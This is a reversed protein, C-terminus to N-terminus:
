WEPSDHKWSSKLPLFARDQCCWCSATYLGMVQASCMYKSDGLWDSDSACARPWGTPMLTVWLWLTTYRPM